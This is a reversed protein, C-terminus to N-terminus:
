IQKNWIPLCGKQDLLITLLKQEIQRPYQENFRGYTIFWQVHLKEINEEAMKRAWSKRRPEGFQKGKIIRGGIGDKRHIIEGNSGERGSIGIYILNNLEIENKSILYIGSSHNPANCVQSLRDTPCYEFQGKEKFKELYTFM